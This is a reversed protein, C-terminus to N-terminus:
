CTFNSPAAHCRLTTVLIAGFYTYKYAFYRKGEVLEPRNNETMPESVGLTHEKDEEQKKVETEGRIKEVYYKVTVRLNWVRM